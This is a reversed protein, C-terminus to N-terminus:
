EKKKQKKGVGRRFLLNSGNRPDTMCKVMRGVVEELAITEKIHLHGYDGCSVSLTEAVFEM